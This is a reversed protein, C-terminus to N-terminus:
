EGESFYFEMLDALMIYERATKTDMHRSKM